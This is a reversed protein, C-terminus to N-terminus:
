KVELIGSNGSNRSQRDFLGDIEASSLTRLARAPEGLRSLVTSAADLICRVRGLAFSSAILGAVERDQIAEYHYVLQLPDPEIYRKRNYRRYLIELVARIECIEDVEEWHVQKVKYGVRPIAELLGERELMHLAERVPTRSIKIQKALRTEYVRSGPPIEGDLIMDSITKYVKERISVTSGISIKM